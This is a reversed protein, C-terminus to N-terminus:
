PSQDEHCQEVLLLRLVTVIVDDILPEALLAEPSWVDPAQHFNWLFNLFYAVSDLEFKRTFVWGGRGLM